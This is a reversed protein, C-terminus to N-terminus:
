SITETFYTEDWIKDTGSLKNKIEAFKSLIAKRSRQKIEQIMEEVSKEGDSEVYLHVHDPALWLLNVFGGISENCEQLSSHIFKFVDISQDFVPFRYIVNWVFHYKLNIIVTDPDYRLKQLALAREYKSKDSDPLKDFYRKAHQEKPCKSVDLIKNNSQNIVKLIPRFAYCKFNTSDQMCRNLHCLVEEHFELKKCYDCKSNFMSRVSEACKQCKIPLETPIAM